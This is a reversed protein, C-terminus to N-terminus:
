PNSPAQLSCGARVPPILVRSPLSVYLTTASACPRFYSGGNQIPRVSKSQPFYRQLLASFEGQGSEAKPGIHRMWDKVIIFFYMQMRAPAASKAAQSCRVSVVAGAAEGEGAVDSVVVVVVVVLGASLVGIAVDVGSVEVDVVVSVVVVVADGVGYDPFGKTKVAFDERARERSSKQQVFEATRGTAATQRM